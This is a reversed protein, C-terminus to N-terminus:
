KIIGVVGFTKAGPSWDSRCEAQLPYNMTDSVALLLHHM